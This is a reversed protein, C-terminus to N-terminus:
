LRRHELAPLRQRVEAIRDACIEALAFGPAVGADALIEGWPDVIMAHGHSKRQNYQNGTQAPAILYCTNEVARARILLEWHAAGTFATFAAPAFIITAGAQSLSRYLEPFRLDYCISLGLTGFEPSSYVVPATEGPITYDSERYRVGDPIDVDFLHIKDYHALEMGDPGFIRACNYVRSEVAKEGTEPSHVRLTGGVLTVAHERSRTALFEVAARAIEAGQRRLEQEPGMFAFYEPLGILSAGARAAQEILAAAQQLNSSLDPTTCM